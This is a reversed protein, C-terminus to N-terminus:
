ISHLCLFTIKLVKKIKKDNTRLPVNAKKAVLVFQLDIIDNFSLHSSSCFLDIIYERPIAGFSSQSDGCDVIWEIYREVESRTLNTNVIKSINIHNIRSINPLHYQPPIKSNFLDIEFNFIRVANSDVDNLSFTNFGERFAQHQNAKIKADIGDM